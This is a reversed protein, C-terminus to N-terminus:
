EPQLYSVSDQWWTAHHKFGLERTLRPELACSHWAGFVLAVRKHEGSKLHKTIVEWMRKERQKHLESLVDPVAGERASETLKRMESLLRQYADDKARALESESGSQLAKEWRV